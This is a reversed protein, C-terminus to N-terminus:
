RGQGTDRSLRRALRAATRFPASFRWSKSSQIQQLQQTTQLVRTRLEAITQTTKQLQERLSYILAQRDQHFEVFDFLLNVFEHRHEVLYAPFTDDLPVCCWCQDRRDVLDLGYRIKDQISNIDTLKPTNYEQHSFSQLKLKLGAADQTCSFHWGANRLVPTGTKWFRGALMRAEQPTTLHERRILLSAVWKKALNRCNLRYYFHDLELASLTGNFAAVVTARPIEDVDSIVVTDDPAADTLGQLM